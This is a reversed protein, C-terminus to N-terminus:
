FSASWALALHYESAGLELIERLAHLAHTLQQHANPRGITIVPTPALKGGSCGWLAGIGAAFQSRSLLQRPRQHGTVLGM